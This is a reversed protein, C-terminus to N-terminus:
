PLCPTFICEYLAVEPLSFNCFYLGHSLIHLPFQAQKAQQGMEGTIGEKATFKYGSNTPVSSTSLMLLIHDDKESLSFRIM